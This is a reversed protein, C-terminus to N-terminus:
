RKEIRDAWDNFGISRIKNVIENASKEGLGNFSTLEDYSPIALISKLTHKGARCLANHTRGSFGMDHIDTVLENVAPQLMDSYTLLVALKDAEELRGLVEDREEVIRAISMTNSVTRLKEVATHIIQLARTRSFGIDQGTQKQTMGLRYYCALARQERQDLGGIADLVGRTYADGNDDEVDFVLRYIRLAYERDTM